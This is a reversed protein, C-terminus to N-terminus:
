SPTDRRVANRLAIMAYPPAFFPRLGRAPDKAIRYAARRQAPTMRSIAVLLHTQTPGKHKRKTM